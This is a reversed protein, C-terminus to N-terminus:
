KSASVTQSFKVPGIKDVNMTGQVMATLSTLNGLISPLTTLIATNSISIPFEEKQSQNPAITFPNLVNIRGIVSNLLYVDGTISNIKVSQGSPNNIEVIVSIETNTLSINKFKVNLIKINVQDVFQKAQRGKYFLYALIAAIGIIIGKNKM